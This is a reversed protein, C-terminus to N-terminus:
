VCHLPRIWELPVLASYAAENELYIALTRDDFTQKAHELRSDLQTMLAHGIFEMFEMFVQLETM